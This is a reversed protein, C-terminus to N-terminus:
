GSYPGRGRWVFAAGALFAIAGLVAVGAVTLYPFKDEVSSGPAAASGPGLVAQMEGMVRDLSGDGFFGMYGACSDTVFRSGDLSLFLVYGEGAEDEDFFGCVGAHKPDDVFIEARGHGKFYRNVAFIADWDDGGGGVTKVVTGIVVADANESFYEVSPNEPWACSCARAPTVSGWLMGVAVM